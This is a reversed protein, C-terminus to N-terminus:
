RTRGSSGLALSISGKRSKAPNGVRTYLRGFNDLHCVACAADPQTLLLPWFPSLIPLFRVKTEDGCTVGSSVRKPGHSSVRCGVARPHKDHQAVIYRAKCQLIM